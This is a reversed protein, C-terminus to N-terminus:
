PFELLVLEYFCENLSTNILIRLKDRTQQPVDQNNYLPKMRLLDNFSTKKWNPWVFLKKLKM